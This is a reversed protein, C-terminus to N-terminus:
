SQQLTATDGNALREILAAVDEAPEDTPAPEAAAQIAQDEAELVEREDHETDILSM